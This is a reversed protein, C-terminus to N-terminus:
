TSSIRIRGWILMNFMRLCSTNTNVPVQRIPSTLPRSSTTWSEYDTVEYLVTTLMGLKEEPFRYIGEERFITMFFTTQGHHAALELPRFGKDNAQMLLSVRGKYSVNRMISNYISNYAEMDIEKKLKEEETLALVLIHIVNNGNNGKFTLEEESIFSFVKEFIEASCFSAALMFPKQIGSCEGSKVKVSCESEPYVFNGTLLFHAEAETCGSLVEHFLDVNDFEIVKYWDHFKVWDLKETKEELCKRTAEIIYGVIQSPDTTAMKELYLEESPFKSSFDAIKAMTRKTSLVRREGM